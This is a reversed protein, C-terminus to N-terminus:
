RCGRQGKRLREVISDCRQIWLSTMFWLPSNLFELYEKSVQILYEEEFALEEILTWNNFEAAVSWEEEDIRCNPLRYHFAPRPRIKEQAIMSRTEPEIHCLLPLLDLSRNRTPNFYIYDAIFEEINPSYEPNLTKLIYEKDFPEIFWSLKRTLDIEEQEKIWEYLVLFARLINLIDKAKLSPAEINIHLGFAYFLSARTGLAGERKLFERLKEIQELRDFPVPPTVIEYPVFIESVFALIEEWFESGSKKQRKLLYKSDLYIQFDGLSTNKILYEYESEIRTEGGFLEVIVAASQVPTLGSFEIEFGARRLKGDGNKLLPPLVFHEM